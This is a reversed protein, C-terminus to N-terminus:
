PMEPKHNGGSAYQQFFRAVLSLAEDYSAVSQAHGPPVAAVDITSTVSILVGGTERPEIRVVCVATRPRWTRVV